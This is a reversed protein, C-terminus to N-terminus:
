RARGVPCSVGHGGLFDRAQGIARADAHHQGMCIATDKGALAGIHVAGRPLHWLAADVIAFRREIGGIAFQLLFGPDDGIGARLNRLHCGFEDRENLILSADDSPVTSCLQSVDSVSGKCVAIQLDSFPNRLPLPIKLDDADKAAMSKAMATDDAFASDQLIGEPEFDDDDM